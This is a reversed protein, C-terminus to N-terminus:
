PSDPSHPMEELEELLNDVAELGSLVSAMRVQTRNGPFRRLKSLASGIGTALPLSPHTLPHRIALAFWVSGVPKEKTGGEPGAIGTLALSIDVSLANLAGLAMSEVVPASVAGFQTLVAPDVRLLTRKVADAYATVGGGFWRSSGPFETCLASILGGTCSEAIGVLLKRAMLKKSLSDILHSGQELFHETFVFEPM